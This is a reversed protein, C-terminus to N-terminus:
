PPQPKFIFIHRQNQVRYRWDTFRPSEANLKHGALSAVCHATEDGGVIKDFTQKTNAIIQHRLTYFCIKVRGKPFANTCSRTLLKALTAIATEIAERSPFNNAWEAMRRIAERTKVNSTRRLEHVPKLLDDFAVEKQKKRSTRKESAPVASGAKILKRAHDSM